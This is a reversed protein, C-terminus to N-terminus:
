VADLNMKLFYIIIKKIIVNIYKTYIDSQMFINYAILIFLLLEMKKSFNM